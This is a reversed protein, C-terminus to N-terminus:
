NIKYVTTEYPQYLRHSQHLADLYNSILVEKISNDLHIIQPKDFNVVVLVREDNLHREYIFCNSRAGTRNIFTGEIFLRKKRFALLKQYYSYISKEAKRDNEVNIHECDLNVPIWPTAESFGGNRNNSWPMPRRANDRSGNAIMEMLETSSFHMENDHFYNIGEIDRYSDLDYYPSNLVGIEQGQYIFPIGKLLYFMTALMTACEYRLASQDLTRSLFRPQDHNDTFISYLLGEKQSFEQWKILTERTRNLDYKRDKDFAFKGTRAKDFHDFQFLTVLEKRKPHAHNIVEEEDDVGCEGVTFLHRTEERGFMERIYSHLHPGFGNNGSFDKSIQDIVDIRFGDVGLNVWFDIIKKMETRVMPNNWNLDAQSIAYSHLYYQKRLDDYQWASGGFAAKWDNPPTDFWYYYDSYPNDKGQRSSQFYRHATSTHNPVLDMILRIGLLHMKDIMKKWDEMTGFEDMIDYYDSIDYGNDDNPSKFCPSLWVANIGLEKLHELKATIGNLDGIGDKNSDFFSRPYIQYINWNLFHDYNM